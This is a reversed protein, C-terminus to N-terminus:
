SGGFGNPGEPSRELPDAVYSWGLDARPDVIAGTPAPARRRIALACGTGLRFALRQRYRLCDGSKGTCAERASRSGRATREGAWNLGLLGLIERRRVELGIGDVGRVDGYHKCLDTVEIAIRGAAAATM